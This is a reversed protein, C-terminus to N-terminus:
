QRSVTRDNKKTGKRISSTSTRTNLGTIYLPPVNRVDREDKKRQSKFIFSLFFAALSNRPGNESSM